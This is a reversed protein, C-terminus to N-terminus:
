KEPRDLEELADALEEARRRCEIVLVPIATATSEDGPNARDTISVNDMMADLGGLLAALNVAGLHADAHKPRSM